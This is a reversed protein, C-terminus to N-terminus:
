SVITDRSTKEVTQTRQLLESYFSYDGSECSSCSVCVTSLVELSSITEQSPALGSVMAERSTKDVTQMHQLLESDPSLLIEPLKTWQKRASYYSRICHVFSESFSEDGSESSSCRVCVTSLVELSAITEQSPAVVACAFLLVPDRSTKDVTQTRQLLEWEPSL